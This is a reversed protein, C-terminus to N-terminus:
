YLRWCCIEPYLTYKDLDITGIRCVVDGMLWESHGDEYDLWEPMHRCGFLDGNSDMAAYRVGDKIIQEIHCPGILRVLEDLELHM